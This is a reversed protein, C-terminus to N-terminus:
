VHKKEKERAFKELQILITRCESWANVEKIIHSEEIKENWNKFNREKIVLKGHCKHSCFHNKSKSSYINQRTREFEKKCHFCILKKYKKMYKKKSEKKCEFCNSIYGKKTILYLSKSTNKYRHNKKCLRSLAYKKNNVEIFTIEVGEHRRKGSYDYFCNRSCFTKYPNPYRPLEIKCNRCYRSPILRPRGKSYKKRFKTGCEKSCFFKKSKNRKIRWLKKTIKDGCISCEVTEFKATSKKYKLYCEKTCYYHKFKFTNLYSKQRIFTKKCSNCKLKVRQSNYNCELSCYNTNKISSAARLFKKGCLGCTVIKPKRHPQYLKPIHNVKDKYQNKLCQICAGGKIYRLSEGTGEYNHGRKCLTGLYHKSKNM